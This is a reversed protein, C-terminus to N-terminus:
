FKYGVQIGFTAPPAPIATNTGDLFGLPFGGLWHFRNLVNKGYAAFSFSSGFINDWQYRLNLTTYGPLTSDPIVSGAFNSFPTKSVTYTDARLSMDGWAEPVPLYAMAYLSASFHPSDAFNTVRGSYGGGTAYPNTFNASTFAANGGLLLWSNVSGDFSLELGQTLASKVNVTT